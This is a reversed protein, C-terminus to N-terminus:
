RRECGTDPPTTTCSALRMKALKQDERSTPMQTSGRRHKECASLWIHFPTGAVVNSAQKLVTLAVWIVIAEMVEMVVDWRRVKCGSLWREM